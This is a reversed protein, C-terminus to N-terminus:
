VDNLSPIFYYFVSHPLHKGHIVVSNLKILYIFSNIIVIIRSMRTYFHSSNFRTFLIAVYKNNKRSLYDLSEAGLKKAKKTLKKFEKGTVVNKDDDSSQDEDPM